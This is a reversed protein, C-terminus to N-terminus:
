RGELELQCIAPRMNKLLSKLDLRHLINSLTLSFNDSASCFAGVFIILVNENGGLECSELRLQGFRFREVLRPHATLTTLANWSIPTNLCLKLEVCHLHRIVQWLDEGRVTATISPCPCICMRITPEVLWSVALPGQMGSVPATLECCCRPRRVRLNAAAM